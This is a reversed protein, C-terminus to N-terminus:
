YLSLHLHGYIYIYIYIYIKKVKLETMSRIHHDLAPKGTSLHWEGQALSSLSSLWYFCAETEAKKRLDRMIVYMLKYWGCSGAEIGILYLSWGNKSFKETHIDWNGFQHLSDILKNTLEHSSSTTRLLLRIL